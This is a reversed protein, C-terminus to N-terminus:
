EMAARARAPHESKICSCLASPVLLHLFGLLCFIRLLFSMVSPQAHPSRTFSLAWVRDHTRRKDQGESVRRVLGFDGVQVAAVLSPQSACVGVDICEALPNWHTDVLM